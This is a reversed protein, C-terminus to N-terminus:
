ADYVDGASKYELAIQGDCALCCRALADSDITVAHRTRTGCVDDHAIHAETHAHVSRLIAVTGSQCVTAIHDEVVTRECPSLVLVERDVPVILVGCWM